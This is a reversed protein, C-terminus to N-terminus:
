PDMEGGTGLVTHGCNRDGIRALFRQIVSPHLSLSLNPDVRGVVHEEFAKLCLHVHLPARKGSWRPALGHNLFGVLKTRQFAAGRDGAFGRAVHM